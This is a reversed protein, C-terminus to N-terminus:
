EKRTFSPNLNPFTKNKVSTDQLPVEELFFINAQLAKEQLRM